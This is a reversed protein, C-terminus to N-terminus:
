INTPATNNEKDYQEPPKQKFNQLLYKNVHRCNSLLENRKNLLPYKQFIINFKETLCLDCRKSGNSYAAAKDIISWEISFQKTKKDKLSWIHKSLETSKRKKEDKFSNKHKYLRDKFTNETLGIYNVGDDDASTKVKARYVIGSALCKGQLPCNEKARCNCDRSPPPKRSLTKRNHSQIITAINPMCSYSVKVTNRNFIKHYKQEPPFHKDILQLFQKAVNTKVNM